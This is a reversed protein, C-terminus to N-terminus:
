AGICLRVGSMVYRTQLRHNKKAVACFTERGFPTRMAPPWSACHQKGGDGGSPLTAWRAQLLFCGSAGVGLRFHRLWGAAFRACFSREGTRGGAQNGFIIDITVDRKKGLSPREREGISTSYCNFIMWPKSSTSAVASISAARVAAIGFPRIERAVCIILAARRARAVHPRRPTVHCPIAGRPAPATSLLSFNRGGNSSSIRAGYISPASPAHAREIVTFAESASINQNRAASINGGFSSFRRRRGGFNEGALMCTCM